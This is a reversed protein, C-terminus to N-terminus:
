EFRIQETSSLYTLEDNELRRTSRSLRIPLADDSTDVIHLVFLFKVCRCWSFVHGRMAHPTLNAQEGYIAWIARRWETTMLQTAAVGGLVM